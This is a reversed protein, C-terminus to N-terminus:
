TSANVHVIVVQTEDGGDYRLDYTVDLGTATGPGLAYNSTRDPDDSISDIWAEANEGDIGYRDVGDRILTVYEGLSGATLFYTVESYDPQDGVTNFGVTDSSGTVTGDPGDISIDITREDNTSVYQGADDDRLGVSAKTLIGSRMDLRLSRTAKIQAVGEADLTSYGDTLVPGRPEPSPGVVVACGTMLAALLVALAAAFMPKPKKM